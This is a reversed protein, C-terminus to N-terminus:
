QLLLRPEVLSGYHDIAKIEMNEEELTVLFVHNIKAAKALYWYASGIAPERPSVGWCGDGLYVIGEKVDIREEKLPFTRKYCHNHHEFAVKVQASEFHPVFHQRIATPTVADYAYVAPYASKHYAPIIWKQGKREELATQLWQEQEGAIPYVHGTDLLILSLYSGFDLARYTYLNERMPFLSFFLVQERAPDTYHRSLDHNGIVPVMPIVRRDNTIMQKKWEVLFRHWREFELKQEWIWVYHQGAYAIDGGVVVFDPELAAVQDNMMRMLAFSTFNDGGEVFRVPRSLTEPLTQFHYVESFGEIKFDYLTDQRLGQLFAHYVALEQEPILVREGSMEQWAVSGSARYFVRDPSEKGQFWSVTMTHAPDDTFTLYLVQPLVPFPYPAGFLCNITCFVLVWLRLLM